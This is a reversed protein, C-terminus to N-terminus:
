IWSIFRVSGRLRCEHRRFGRSLDRAVAYTVNMDGLDVLYIMRATVNMDGLDVLYIMRAAVNMDGSDVLYIMRAAVNM